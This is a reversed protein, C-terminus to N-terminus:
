AVSGKTLEMRPKVILLDPCLAETSAWLSSGLACGRAKYSAPPLRMRRDASGRGGAAEQLSPDDRMEIAAYCDYRRPHNENV